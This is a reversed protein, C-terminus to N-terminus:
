AILPINNKEMPVKLTISGENNWGSLEECKYGVEVTFNSLLLPNIAGLVKL